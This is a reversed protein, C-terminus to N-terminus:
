THAPQTPLHLCSPLPHSGASPCRGPPLILLESPMQVAVLPVDAAANAPQVGTHPSLPFGNTASLIDSGEKKGSGNRNGLPEESLWVGCRGGRGMHQFGRGCRIHITCALPLQMDRPLATDLQHAVRAAPRDTPSERLESTTTCTTDHAALTCAPCFWDGEPVVALPPKLCYIHYATTCSDGDCLLMESEYHRSHCAAGAM